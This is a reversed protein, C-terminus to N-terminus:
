RGVRGGSTIAVANAAAFLISRSGVSLSRIVKGCTEVYPACSRRLSRGNCSRRGGLACHAIGDIWIEDIWIENYWDRRLLHAKELSRFAATSGNKFFIRPYPLISVKRIMGALIADRMDGASASRLSYRCIGACFM